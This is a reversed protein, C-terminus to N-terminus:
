GVFYGSAVLYKDMLRHSLAPRAVIWGAAALLREPTRAVLGQMKMLREHFRDMGGVQEWYLARAEDPSLEGDLASAVARGCHVGHFISLLLIGPSM